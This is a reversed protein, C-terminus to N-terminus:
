LPEGQSVSEILADIPERPNGEEDVTFLGWGIEARYYEIMDADQM